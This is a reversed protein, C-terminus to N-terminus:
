LRVGSYRLIWLLIQGFKLRERGLIGLRYLAHSFDLTYSPSLPSRIKPPRYERLFSKLRRYDHDLSYIAQLIRRYGEQLTELSMAPLINTSLGVNNGTSDFLVRNEKMLLGLPPPFARKHALKLAHRFSWFTDPFKPYLLLIKM